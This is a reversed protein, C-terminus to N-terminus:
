IDDGLVMFGELAALLKSMEKCVFRPRVRLFPDM